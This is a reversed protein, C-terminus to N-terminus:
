DKQTAPNRAKVEKGLYHKYGSLRSSILGKVMFGYYLNLLSSKPSLSFENTKM